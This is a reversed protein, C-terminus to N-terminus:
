LIVTTLFYHLLERKVIKQSSEKDKTQWNVKEKSEM